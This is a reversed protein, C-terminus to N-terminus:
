LLLNHPILVNSIYVVSEKNPMGTICLNEMHKSFFVPPELVDQFATCELFHVIQSLPNWCYATTSYISCFTPTSFILDYLNM